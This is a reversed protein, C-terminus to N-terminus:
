PYHGRMMLYMSIIMTASAKASDGPFLAIVTIGSFSSGFDLHKWSDTNIKAIIGFNVSWKM